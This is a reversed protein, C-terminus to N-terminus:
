GSVCLNEKTLRGWFHSVFMSKLACICKRVLIIRQYANRSDAYHRISIVQVIFVGNKAPAAKASWQIFTKWYAVHNSAFSHASILSGCISEESVVCIYGHMILNKWFFFEFFCQTGRLFSQYSPLIIATTSRISNETSFHMCADSVCCLFRMKGRYGCRFKEFSDDACTCVTHMCEFYMSMADRAYKM